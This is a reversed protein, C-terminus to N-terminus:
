KTEVGKHQRLYEPLSFLISLALVIVIFSLSVFIPVHLEQSLLHTGVLPVLMKAGVFGLIIAVGTKLYIFLEMIGSIMFFLARLGLIAFINSTYVVFANQSVSLVAPISDFAFLIDSIEILILVVLLPTAFLKGNERTFFHNGDYKPSIPLIKKIFQLTRSKEPDFEEESDNRHLFIKISTYILFAGFIYLLWNYRSVLATGSFIMVGRLILAGLIGWKLVRPQQELSVNYKQFIMIFVFLNDVSLSKELLYAAIYEMTLISNQKPNTPDTDYFYICGAFAFALAIWILTWKFAKKFTMPQNKVKQFAGLDIALMLFVLIVFVVLLIIEHSNM